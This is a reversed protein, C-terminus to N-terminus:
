KTGLALLGVTGTGGVSLSYTHSGPGPYDVAIGTHSTGQLVMATAIISGDRWLNFQLEIPAQEGNTADAKCSCVLAVAAIIEPTTSTAARGGFDTLPLTASVFNGSAGGSVPVTVANKGIQLAGVALHDINGTKVALQKILATDIAAGEIYTMINASTLKSLGAFNGLGYVLSKDLATGGGFLVKGDADKITLGRTDIRDATLLGKVQAWDFTARAIIAENIYTVGNKVIFPKITADPVAPDGVAFTTAQVYFDSTMQGSGDQHMGLGFGCAYKQAAGDLSAMRVSWTGDLRGTVDTSLDSLQQVLGGKGNEGNVRVQLTTVDKATAGVANSTAEIKRQVAGINGNINAIATTVQRAIANDGNLQEDVETRVAGGVKGKFWEPTEITEIRSKLHQWLRSQSIEDSLKRIVEAVSTSGSSGGGSTVTGGSTGSGTGEVAANIGAKLDAVTLFKEDGDGVHGNRVAWADSMAKLFARTAPDQISSIPPLNPIPNAM